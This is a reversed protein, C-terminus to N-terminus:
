GDRLSGQQKGVRFADTEISPERGEVFEVMLRATGLSLHIGSRFHGAAVYIRDSEPLKGCMPFGDFTMPRLGSWADVETGTAIAPCTDRVFQRLDELGNPTTGHQFGVEEECSGVLVNGDARPVLYRHGLNVIAGLRHEARILLVQGRVPVVSEALRLRSAVLGTWAGGCVVVQDAVWEKGGLVTVRVQQDSEDLDTVECDYRVDAGQKMCALRLAHIYTPNHIRYEDPVWWARGDSERCWTDLEPETRRLEDLSKEECEIDLDRWYQIMGAMSAKEGPTDALYWGGCRNLGCDLGTLETLERALTPFREHSLGRLQDMPDTATALNAPPLIGAAALSAARPRTSSAHDKALDTDRELLVVDHGHRTLEYATAAGIAGGGIVLVRESGSM